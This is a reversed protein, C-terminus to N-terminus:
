RSPRRPTAPAPQSVMREYLKVRREIDRALETQGAAQALTEAKTATKVAEDARGAAAYAAALNDAFSAERPKLRLAEVYHAIADTLQGDEALAKALGYHAVAFDPELRVAERYHTIAEAIKGQQSLLEALDHHALAFDPKLRLAAVYHKLAPGAEGRRALTSGMNCHAEPYDPRLRLAEAYQDLAADSRGEAALTNGMGLHAEALDPKIRLARAYHQEAEELKGQRTLANGLNNHAEAFDPRSRLAESLHEIAEDTSGAGILATGLTEQFSATEPSKRVLERAIALIETNSLTGSAIGRSLRTELHKVPLMDKVDKLARPVPTSRADHGDAVYGLAELRRRQDSDLRVPPARGAKMKHELTALTTELKAVQEVRVSALNQLETPDARRDYLEPRATRVYKWRPTTLSRLPSWGFHSYPLDTEAYSPRSPIAEGRLAPALSRGLGRTQGGIGLVDLTTPLLDVLSVTVAVRQGPRVRGPLSVILPVRLVEANLLYGHEVEDHDGLGEGHDGVAIVLTRDALNRAQLFAMLRGVQRDVFAVEADYSAKGALSTGQLEAHAFYPYHPDYLHVWCFFPRGQGERAVARELWALAADTVVNGPRYRSMPEPVEQEQAGSLDDDYTQFGRNLGFQSNLVFAAVFAGTNYGRAALIDALVPVVADLRNEGNVRLGHEPPELGSFITAHAPLTMPCSTFAQEFLTGGTALADLAPTLADRYGYCGLRDARTTDLTMLLVNYPAGAAVGIKPSTEAAHAQTLLLAAAVLVIASAAAVPPKRM